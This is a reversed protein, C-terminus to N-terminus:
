TEKDKIKSLKIIIYRPFCRKLNIRNPLRHAEHVQIDFDRRMNPFNKPIIEKFLREAGKWQRGNQSKGLTFITANPSTEYNVYAKKVRKYEKKWKKRYRSLKLIDIYSNM